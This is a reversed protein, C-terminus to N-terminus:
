VENAVLGLALTTHFHQIHCDRVLILVLVILFMAYLYFRFTVIIIGLAGTRATSSIEFVRNIHSGFFTTISHISIKQNTAKFKYLLARAVFAWFCDSQFRESPVWGTVGIWGPYSVSMCVYLADGSVVRRRPSVSPVAAAVLPRPTSVAFVSVGTTVSVM